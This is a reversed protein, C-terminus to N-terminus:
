PMIQSPMVPRFGFVLTLMGCLGIIIIVLGIWGLIIAAKATGEGSYQHPAVRIEKRAIYGTILGGISGVVPLMWILGLISLVLSVIALAHTAPRNTYIEKDMKREMSEITIWTKGTSCRPAKCFVQRQEKEMENKSLRIINCQDNESMRRCASQDEDKPHFATRDKQGPGKM